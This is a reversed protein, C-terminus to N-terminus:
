ARSLTKAGQAAAAAKIFGLVIFFGPGAACRATRMDGAQNAPNGGDQGFLLLLDVPQPEELFESAPLGSGLKTDRVLGGAVLGGDDLLQDRVAGARQDEHLLSAGVPRVWSADKVIGGSRAGSGDGARYEGGRGFHIDEGGHSLQRVQSSL